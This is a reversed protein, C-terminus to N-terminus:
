LRDCSREAFTTIPEYREPWFHFGHIETSTFSLFWPMYKIWLLYFKFYFLFIEGERKKAIEVGNAQNDFGNTNNYTNVQNKNGSDHIDVPRSSTTLRSTSSTRKTSEYNPREIYSSTKHMLSFPITSVYLPQQYISAQSQRLNNFSRYMDNYYSSSYHSASNFYSRSDPSFYSM